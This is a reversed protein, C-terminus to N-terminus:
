SHLARSPRLYSPPRYQPAELQTIRQNLKEMLDKMQELTSNLGQNETSLMEVSLPNSSASPNIQPSSKFADVTLQAAAYPNFASALCKNANWLDDVKAAAGTLNSLDSAFIINRFEQPLGLAFAYRLNSNNIGGTAQYKSCLDMMFQKQIRDGIAELTHFTQFKTHDPIQFRDTLEKVLDTNTNANNSILSSKYDRQVDRQM